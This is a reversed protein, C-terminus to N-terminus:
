GKDREELQAALRLPGYRQEDIRQRTLSDLTAAEWRATREDTIPTPCDPGSREHDQQQQLLELDEGAQRLRRWGPGFLLPGLVQQAAEILIVTMAWVALVAGLVLCPLALLQWPLGHVIGPPLIAWALLLMVQFACCAAALARLPLPLSM